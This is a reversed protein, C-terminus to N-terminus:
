EGGSRTVFCLESAFERLVFHTHSAERSSASASILSSSVFFPSCMFLFLFFFLRVHKEPPMFTHTLASPMGEEGVERHVSGIEGGLM